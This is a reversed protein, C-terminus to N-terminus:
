STKKIKSDLSRGFRGVEREETIERTWTVLMKRSSHLLRRVQHGTDVIGREM